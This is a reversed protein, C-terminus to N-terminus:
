ARRYYPRKSAGGLIAVLDGSRRRVGEESRGQLRRGPHGVKRVPMEADWETRISGISSTVEKLCSRAPRRAPPLTRRAAASAQVDHRVRSLRAIAYDPGGRHRAM